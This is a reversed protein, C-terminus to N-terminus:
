EKRTCYKCNPYHTMCMESYERYILYEHRKGEIPVDMIYFSNCEEGYYVDRFKIEGKQKTRFKADLLERRNENLVFHICGKICFIILICFSIIGIIFILFGIARKREETM